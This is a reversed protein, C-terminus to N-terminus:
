NLSTMNSAVVSVDFKIGQKSQNSSYNIGEIVVPIAKSGAFTRIMEDKLEGLATSLKSLETNNKDTLENAKYTLESFGTLPGGASPLVYADQLNKFNGKIIGEVQPQSLKGFGLNPGILSYLAEKAAAENGGSINGTQMGMWSSMLKLMDKNGTEGLKRMNWAIALPNGSSELLEKPISLGMAQGHEILQQGIGALKGTDGEYMGKNYSAFDEMSITGKEIARSFKDVIRATSDMGVGFKKVRDYLESQKQILEAPGYIGKRDKDTSTAFKILSNLQNATQSSNIGQTKIIKYFLQDATSKDIGAGEMLTRVAGISAVTQLSYEKNQSLRPALNGGISSLIEETEGQRQYPRLLERAQSMYGFKEAYTANLFPSYAGGTSNIVTRNLKTLNEDFKILGTTALRLAAYYSGGMFNAIKPVTSLISRLGSSFNGSMISEFGSIMRSARYQSTLDDATPEKFGIKSLFSQNKTLQEQQLRKNERVSEKLATKVDSIISKNAKFTGDAIEKGLAKISNSTLRLENVTKVGQQRMLEALAQKIFDNEESSIKIDKPDAM